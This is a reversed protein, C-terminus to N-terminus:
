NEKPSYDECYYLNRLNISSDRDNNKVRLILSKLEKNLTDGVNIYSAPDKQKLFYFSIKKQM